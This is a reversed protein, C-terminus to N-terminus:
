WKGVNEKLEQLNKLTNEIDEEYVSNVQSRLCQLNDQLKEILMLTETETEKKVEELFETKLYKSDYKEIYYNNEIIFDNKDIISEEYFELFSPIGNKDKYEIKYLYLYKGEKEDVIEPQTDRIENEWDKTKDSTVIGEVKLKNSFVKGLDKYDIKVLNEM